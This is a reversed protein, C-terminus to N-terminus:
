RTKRIAAQNVVLVLLDSFPKLNNTFVYMGLMCTIFNIQVEVFLLSGAPDQKWWRDVPPDAAPHIEECDDEQDRARTKGLRKQGCRMEAPPRAVVRCRRGRRAAALWTSATTRSEDGDDGPAALRLISIAQNKDHVCRAWSNRFSRLSDHDM